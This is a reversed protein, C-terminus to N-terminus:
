GTWRENCIFVMVVIDFDDGVLQLNNEFLSIIDLQIRIDAFGIRLLMLM